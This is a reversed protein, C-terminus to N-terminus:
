TSVVDLGLGLAVGIQAPDLTVFRVPAPMREAAALHIASTLRVPQERALAAARDRIRVLDEVFRAREERRREEEPIRLLFSPHVTVWCESGDALTLPAERAKTITLTKGTLSRAATAGLAVTLPPRIIAREQEQWVRGPGPERRQALARRM